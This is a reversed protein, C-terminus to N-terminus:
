EVGLLRYNLKDVFMNLNTNDGSFILCRDMNYAKSENDKKIYVAYNSCDKVPIDTNCGEEKSCAFVTRYGAANLGLSTKGLLYDM